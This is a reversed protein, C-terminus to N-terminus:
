TTAGNRMRMQTRMQSRLANDVSGGEAKDGARAQRRQRRSKGTRKGRRKKKTEVGRAEDVQRRRSRKGARSESGGGEGGRLGCQLM